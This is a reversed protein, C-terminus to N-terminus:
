KPIWQFTTHGDGITEIKHEGIQASQVFIGRSIEMMYSSIYAVVRNNDLFDIRSARAEHETTEEVRPSIMIGTRTETDGIFMGERGMVFDTEM